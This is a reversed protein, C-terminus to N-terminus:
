ATLEGTGGTIMPSWAVTPVQGVSANVMRWGNNIIKAVFGPNTATRSGSAPRVEIFGTGGFPIVSGNMGLLANLQSAAYDNLMALSLAGKKLGAVFAAYGGSGFTTVDPTDLDMGIEIQTIFGSIDTPSTLAVAGSAATSGGPAVGGSTAAAVQCFFTTAAVIAM